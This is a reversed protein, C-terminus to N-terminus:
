TPWHTNRAVEVVNNGILIQKPKSTQISKQTILSKFKDLNIIIKNESFWKIDNQSEAM